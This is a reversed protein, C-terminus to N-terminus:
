GSDLVELRFNFDSSGSDQRETKAAENLPM